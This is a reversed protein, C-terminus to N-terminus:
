DFDELDVGTRLWDRAPRQWLTVLAATYLAIVVIVGAEMWTFQPLGQWVFIVLQVIHFAIGVTLLWIGIKWRLEVVIWYLLIALLVFPSLAVALYLGLSVDENPSTTTWTGLAFLGVYLAVAAWFLLGFRSVLRSGSIM